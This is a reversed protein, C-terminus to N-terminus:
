QNAYQHLYMSSSQAKRGSKDIGCSPFFAELASLKEIRPKCRSVKELTVYLKKLLDSPKLYADLFTIGHILYTEPRTTVTKLLKNEFCVPSWYPIFASRNRHIISQQLNKFAHRNRLNNNM